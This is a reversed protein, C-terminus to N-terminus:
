VINVLSSLFEKQNLIKIVGWFRKTKASVSPIGVGTRFFTLTFGM